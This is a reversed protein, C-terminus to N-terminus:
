SRGARALERGFRSAREDLGFRAGVVCHGVPCHVCRDVLVVRRAGETILGDHVEIAPDSNAITRDARASERDETPTLLEGKGIPGDDRAIRREGRPAIREGGAIRGDDGQTTQYDRAIREEVTHKTLNDRPPRSLDRAGTKCDRARTSEPAQKADDVRVIPRREM